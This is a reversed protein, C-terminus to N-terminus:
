GVAALEGNAGLWAEAEALSRFALVQWPVEDTLFMYLNVFAQNEFDERMVNLNVVRSNTRAMASIFAALREVDAIDVSPEVCESWDSIIFRLEDFREDGGIDLADAVLNEGSVSGLYRIHLGGPSWIHEIAMVDWLQRLLSHMGKVLTACSHMLM